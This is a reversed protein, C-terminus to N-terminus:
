FSQIVYLYLPMGGLTINFPFTIALAMPIYLSPNAKPAALKMAAPVAIYSASAALISFLLRDGTETVFLGSVIAM